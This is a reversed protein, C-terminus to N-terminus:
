AALGLAYAPSHGAALVADLRYPGLLQDIGAFFGVRERVIRCEGPPLALPRGTPTKEGLVQQVAALHASDLVFCSLSEDPWRALAAEATRNAGSHDTIDIVGVLRITVANALVLHHQPAPPAASPQRTVTRLFSIAM